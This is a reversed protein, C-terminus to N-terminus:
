EEIREFKKEGRIFKDIGKSINFKIVRREPLRIKQRNISDFAIREKRIRSLFKGFGDIRIDEGDIMCQAMENLMTNIIKEIDKEKEIHNENLIKNMKIEYVENNKDINKFIIKEGLALLKIVKEFAQKKNEGEIEINKELVKRITFEYKKM